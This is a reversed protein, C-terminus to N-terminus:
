EKGGEPVHGERGRKITAGELGAGRGHRGGQGGAPGGDGGGLGSM